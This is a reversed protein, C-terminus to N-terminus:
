CMIKCASIAGHVLPGPLSPGWSADKVNIPGGSPVALALPQFKGLVIDKDSPAADM